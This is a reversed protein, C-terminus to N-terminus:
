VSFSHQIIRALKAAYQPDTAYGAEQLGQAFGVADSGNELVKQYRPNTSILRAYDEFSEAYSSYARFPEKKRAAVGNEYETTMSEVVKGNWNRGAKIGFLNYSSTGDALTIEKKGWGTELAAQSLMFKAPIGTERSAQEAYPALKELFAQVHATRSSNSTSSLYPLQEQQSDLEARREKISDILKQHKLDSSIVRQQTQYTALLSSLASKDSSSDSSNPVLSGIMFAQNLSSAMQLAQEEALSSQSMDAETTSASEGVNASDLTAVRNNNKLQRVLADALGIGRKAFLQSIEQDFISTYMRSQNNSFLGSDFTTKRMSKLVMNMFLAEFQQAAQRLADPSNQKASLRIKSLDGTNITTPTVFTHQTIM